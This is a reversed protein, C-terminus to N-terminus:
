NLVYLNCTILLSCFTGGALPELNIITSLPIYPTPYIHDIKYLLYRESTTYAAMNIREMNFRCLPPAAKPRFLGLLFPSSGFRSHGELIVMDYDQPEYPEEGSDGDVIGGWCVLWNFWARAALIMM